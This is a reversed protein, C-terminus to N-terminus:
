HRTDSRRNRPFPDTSLRRQRVLELEGDMMDSPAVMHAGAKAYALAVEAMRKVSKGNNITGDEARLEGCHGHDTYECLCVDCAVVIDPFEKRILQTALIVPTNPDDAPSGRADKQLHLPVGFLIVSKLGKAVLPSLFGSLKNLGWRKQGPLSKIEVQHLALLSSSCRTLPSPRCETLLLHLQVLDSELACRQTQNMQSSSPICSCLRPSTDSQRCPASSRTSTAGRCPPLSPLRCWSLLLSHYTPRYSLRQERSVEVSSSMSCALISAPLSAARLPRSAARRGAMGHGRARGESSVLLRCFEVEGGRVVFLRGSGRGRADCSLGSAGSKKGGAGIDGGVPYVTSGGM